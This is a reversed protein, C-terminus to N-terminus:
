SALIISEIPLSQRHLRNVHLRRVANLDRAGTSRRKIAMPPAVTRGAMASSLYEQPTGHMENNTGHMENNDPKM